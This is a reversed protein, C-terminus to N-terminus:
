DTINTKWMFFVVMNVFNNIFHGDEQNAIIFVNENQSRNIEGLRAAFKASQWPSVRADQLGVSLM